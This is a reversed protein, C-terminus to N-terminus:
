EFGGDGGFFIQLIVFNRKEIFPNGVASSEFSACTCSLREFSHVAVEAKALGVSEIDPVALQECRLSFWFPGLPLPRVLVHMMTM